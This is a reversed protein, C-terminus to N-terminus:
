RVHRQFDTPSPTAQRVQMLCKVREGPAMIVTTMVGAVMGANFHQGLSCLPSIDELALTSNQFVQTHIYM